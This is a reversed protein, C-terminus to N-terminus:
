SPPRGLAPPRTSPPAEYRPPADILERDEENRARDQQLTHTPLLGSIPLSVEASICDRDVCPYPRVIPNLRDLAVQSALERHCRLSDEDNNCACLHIDVVIVHRTSM